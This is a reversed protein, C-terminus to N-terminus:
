ERTFDSEAKSALLVVDRLDGVHTQGYIANDDFSTIHILKDKMVLFLEESISSLYWYEDRSYESNEEIGEPMVKGLRKYYPELFVMGSTEDNYTFPRSTLMKLIINIQSKMNYEEIRRLSENWDGDSINKGDKRYKTFIEKSNNKSYDFFQCSLSDECVYISDNKFNLERAYDEFDVNYYRRAKVSDEEFFLAFSNDYKRLYLGKSKASPKVAFDSPKDYPNRYVSYKEFNYSVWVGSLDSVGDSCGFYIVFIFILVASRILFNM